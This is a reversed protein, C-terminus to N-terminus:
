RSMNGLAEDMAELLEPTFHAVMLKKRYAERSNAIIIEPLRILGYREKMQVLGYKGAVANYYSEISPSTSGLLTKAKHFGALM